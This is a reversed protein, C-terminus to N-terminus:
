SKFGESEVHRCPLEEVVVYKAIALRCAEKDFYVSILNGGQDDGEKKAEFALVQQGKLDGKKRNTECFKHHNWLGSTGSRRVDAALDKECLHHRAWPPNTGEIISFFQWVGSQFRRKKEPKDVNEDNIAEECEVDVEEIEIDKM